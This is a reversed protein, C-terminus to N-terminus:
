DSTKRARSLLFYPAIRSDVLEPHAMATTEDAHPENVLEIPLGAGLVAAFWASLTRCSYTITFTTAEGKAQISV